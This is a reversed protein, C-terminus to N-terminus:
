LFNFKMYLALGTWINLVLPRLSGYGHLYDSFLVGYRQCIGGGGGGM